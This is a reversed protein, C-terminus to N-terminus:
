YNSTAYLGICIGRFGGAIPKSIHLGAAKPLLAMGNNGYDRSLLGSYRGYSIIKLFIPKNNPFNNRIKTKLSPRTNKPKLALVILLISAFPAKLKM